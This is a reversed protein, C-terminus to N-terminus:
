EDHSDTFQAQYLRAYPSGEERIMDAHRGQQVIRGDELVLIRDADEVTSLRHAIILTTRDRTIHEMAERIHRESENDLASTAEDMIFIPADKLIARALAVRQRQGGSLLSGDEGIETELGKELREAFEMVHAARAAEEVQERTCTECGYAINEVLTDNFLTVNQSVLTMQERLSTLEVEEIDVGDLLIRGEGPSYFRPLLSVLTSKGGGSRGVLAVTEGAPIHLDIDRLAPPLNEAYRFTVGEFRIDGDVRGLQHKGENPEPPTDLLGFVSQSAAIGQQLVANVRTLNKVPGVMLSMSGVFSIFTGVTIAERMSPTNAVYIVAALGFVSFLQVLPVNVAEALHKKLNQRRNNENVKNFHRQEIEEGGFTKIVRQGQVAEDTAHSVDGMTLQIRRSLKRFRGSVQYILAIIPPAIVLFTLMLWPSLYIMWGLLVVVTLSDRILVIVARSAANAVQEVDYNLKSIVGGTSVQDYYPIPLRLLHRFMERRLDRIVSRAVWKIAYNSVFDSFFRALGIAIILAPIWTMFFPDKEVFTEDMLPKLLAAIGAQSGAMAVMGIVGIIFIRWYPWVYTLLRRYLFTAGGSQEYDTQRSRKRSM